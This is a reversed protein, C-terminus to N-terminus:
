GETLLGHAKKQKGLLCHADSLLPYFNRKRIGQEMCVKNALDDFGRAWHYPITHCLSILAEQLKIGEHQEAGNQQQSSSADEQEQGHPAGDKELDAGQASDKVHNAQASAHSEQSIPEHYGLIETLIKPMVDSIHKKLEKLPEDDKTYHRCLDELIQVADLRYTNNEADVATRTLSEIVDGVSRLMSMSTAHAESQSSLVAQLKEGALRRIDSSKKALHVSGCMRDFCYDPLLSIHLLLWTFLLMNSNGDSLVISPTDLSLDLAIKVAQRRLSVQCKSCRLIYSVFRVIEQINGEIIESRLKLGTEGPAAMLRSMLEMSEKTIPQWEDYHHDKHLQDSCLAAMTNALLGQTNRIVRCNNEDIALKQLIRLGQVVLGKYGHSPNSSSDTRPSRSGATRASRSYGEVRHYRRENEELLWDREYEKPLYSDREYGEPRWSFEEELTGLLSSVCRIMTGGFPHEELCISGAVRAVIRAAHERIEISYPSTAPSITEVLRQVMLCFSASGTLLKEILGPQGSQANDPQLITGLIMVGPLYGSHRPKSGMGILLDVGYTVLNRGRAFSPDKMCGTVTEDLYDSVLATDLSSYSSAVDEALGAKAVLDYITKYGFVVGQAVALSYLINLAPKLNVSGETNGYDHEILRWISVGTSIYLGFLYLVAVLCLVPALVGLQVVIAVLFLLFLLPTGCVLVPAIWPSHKELLQSFTIRFATGLTWLM